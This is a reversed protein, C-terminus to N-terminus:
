EKVVTCTCLVRLSLLVTCRVCNTHHLGSLLFDVPDYLKIDLKNNGSIVANLLSGGPVIDGPFSHVEPSLIVDTLTNHVSGLSHSM